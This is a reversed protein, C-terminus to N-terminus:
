GTYKKNDHVIFKFFLNLACRIPNNTSLLDPM